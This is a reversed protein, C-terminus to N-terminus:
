FRQAFEKTIESFVREVVWANRQLFVLNGGFNQTAGYSEIRLTVGRNANLSPSESHFKGLVIRMLPRVIGDKDLNRFSGIRECKV